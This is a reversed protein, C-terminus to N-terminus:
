PALAGGELWNKVRTIEARYAADDAPPPLYIDPMIGAVDVPMIPLRASRTSAYRLERKGSQLVHPRLNSYDLAGATNRGLVKVSFSQRATLVFQECSSGCYKDILVAVRQPQTAAPASSKYDVASDTMGVFSNPQAARMRAVWTKTLSKCSEDGPSFRDCIKETAAINAETVFLEASVDARGNIMLWSLLPQYTSDAGGSNKRVDVIWYKHQRLNAEEKKLLAAFSERHRSHFSPVTMLLTDASLIQLSPDATPPRPPVPNDGAISAVSIHDRRWTLVFAHLHQTCEAESTAKAARERAAAFSDRMAAEGQKRYAAEGGADNALLFPPIAELDRLCDDVIDNGFASAGACLLLCSLALGTSKFPM